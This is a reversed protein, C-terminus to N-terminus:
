GTALKETLSVTKVLSKQYDSLETILSKGEISVNNMGGALSAINASIQKSLNISDQLARNFNGLQETSDKLDQTNDAM